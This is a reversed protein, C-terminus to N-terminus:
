VMNMMRRVSDHVSRKCLPHARRRRRWEEVLRQAVREERVLQEWDRAAPSASERVKNVVLTMISTTVKRYTSCSDSEKGSYSRPVSTTALSQLFRFLKKLIDLLPDRFGPINTSTGLESRNPMSLTRSPISTFYPVFLSSSSMSLESLIWTSRNHDFDNRKLKHV